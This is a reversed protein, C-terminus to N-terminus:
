SRTRYESNWTVDCLEQGTEENVALCISDENFEAVYDTRGQIVERAPMVEAARWEFLEHLLSKTACEPCDRALEADVTIEQPEPPGSPKGDETPIFSRTHAAMENDMLGSKLTFDSPEDEFEGHRRIVIEKGVEFARDLEEM